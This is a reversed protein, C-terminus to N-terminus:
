GRGPSPLKEEWESEKFGVMSLAGDRLFPRKILNGNEALMKLFPEDEAEALREKVGPARYDKGSTNCLAKRHGKYARLMEQLEEIAPPTERIPVEEFPIERARLWQTARQCTSCKRYTYIRIM